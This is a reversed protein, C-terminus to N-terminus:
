SRWLKVEKLIVYPQFQAPCLRKLSAKKRKTIHM